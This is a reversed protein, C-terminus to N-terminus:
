AEARAEAVGRAHGDDAGPKIRARVVGGHVALKAALHQEHLIPLVVQVAVCTAGIASAPHPLTVLVVTGGGLPSVDALLNEVVGLLAVTVLVLCTTQAYRTDIDDPDPTAEMTGLFVGILLRHLLLAAMCLLSASDNKYDEFLAGWRAVFGTYGRKAGIGSARDVWMRFGSKKDKVLM